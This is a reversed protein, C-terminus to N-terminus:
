GFMSPGGAIATSGGSGGGGGYISGAGANNGGAGGHFIGFAAQSSGGEGLAPSGGNLQYIVPTGPVGSSSAGTTGGGGGGGAGATAGGPGGGYAGITVGNVILTTNGGATGAGASGTRGAGALAVNVTQTDVQSIPVIRENYGGGGGSNSQGATANRSGGGGGGWLQIRVMTQGGTPKTWTGTIDLTQVDVPVAVAATTQTTADPFKVGGTTSEITGAVSLKQGPSSTGIGVNGSSDIRMAEAGGEAFAITDAAPFFIGTNADTGRLAPTAATGDVDSLGDTGSLILTM